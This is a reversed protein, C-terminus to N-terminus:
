PNAKKAENWGEDVVRDVLRQSISHFGNERRSKNIWASTRRFYNQQSEEKGRRLRLIKRLYHNEWSQIRVAARKDLVVHQLDCLAAGQASGQWAELKDRHSGPRTLTNSFRWYVKTGRAIARDLTTGTTGTGDLDTGLVDLVEVRKFEVREGGPTGWASIRPETM